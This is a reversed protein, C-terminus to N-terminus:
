LSAADGGLQVGASGAGHQWSSDSGWGKSSAMDETEVGLCERMDIAKETASLVM